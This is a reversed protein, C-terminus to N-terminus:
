PSQFSGTRSKTCSAPYLVAQVVSAPIFRSGEEGKVSLRKVARYGDRLKLDIQDQNRRAFFQTSPLQDRLTHLAGPKGASEFLGTDSYSFPQWSRRWLPLLSRLV